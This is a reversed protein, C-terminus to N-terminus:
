GAIWPWLLPLILTTFLGALTLALSAMSLSQPAAQAVHQNGVIHAAMGLALAYGDPDRDRQRRLVLPLLAVGVLGTVIVLGAALDAPGGLREMLAIAFPSTVSKTSLAKTTAASLGLLRATAVASVIGVTSGVVLAALLAPGARVIAARQRYIPLAFAVTAPALLWRLPQASTMYSEVPLRLAFLLALVLLAAIAVPNAVPHHRALAALRQALLYAGVTAVIALVAPMLAAM